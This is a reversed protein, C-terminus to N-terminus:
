WNTPKATMYGSMIAMRDIDIYKGSGAPGQQGIKEGIVILDVNGAWANLTDGQDQEWTQNAKWAALDDGPYDWSMAIDIWIEKVATGTGSANDALGGGSYYVTINGPDGTRIRQELSNNMSDNYTAEFVTCNNDVAASLKVRLWITGTTDPNIYEDGSTVWSLYKDTADLRAGNSGSEGYSTSITFNNNTGQVPTGDNKCGYNTGSSHDGNWSFLVNTDAYFPPCNGNGYDSTVGDVSAPDPVGDVSAPDPVGDVVFAAEAVSVGLNYLAVLGGIQYAKKLFDRRKM